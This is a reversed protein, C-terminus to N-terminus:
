AALYGPLRDLCDNWGQEHAVHSSEDEFGDHVLTLRTGSPIPAFTFTVLSEAKQGGWTWTMALRTIPQVAVYRGEVSLDHSASAVRFTGGVQPDIECTTQWDSPWIWAAYQEAKTFATWVRDPAAAIERVLTFGSV